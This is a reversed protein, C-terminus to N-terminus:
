SRRQLWDPSSQGRRRYAEALLARLDDDTLLVTQYGEDPSTHGQVIIGDAHEWVRVARWGRTDIWAGIARFVDQYDTQSLGAFHHKDGRIGLEHRM